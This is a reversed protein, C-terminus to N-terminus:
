RDVFEEHHMAEFGHLSGAQHILQSQFHKLMATSYVTQKTSIFHRALRFDEYVFIKNNGNTRKEAYTANYEAGCSCTRVLLLGRASGQRTYVMPGNEVLAAVENNNLLRQNPQGHCGLVSPVQQDCYFCSLPRSPPYLPICSVVSRSGLRICEKEAADYLDERFQSPRDIDYEAEEYRFAIIADMNTDIDAKKQDGEYVFNTILGVRLNFPLASTYILRALQLRLFEEPNFLSTAQGVPHKLLDSLLPSIDQPHHSSASM